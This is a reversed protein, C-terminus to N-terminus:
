QIDEPLISSPYENIFSKAGAEGDSYINFDTASVKTPCSCLETLCYIISYTNYSM